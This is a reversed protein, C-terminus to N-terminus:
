YSNQAFFLNTSLPAPNYTPGSGVAGIAVTISGDTCEATDLLVTYLASVLLVM